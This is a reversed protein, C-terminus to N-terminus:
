GNTMSKYTNQKLFIPFMFLSFITFSMSGGNIIGSVM